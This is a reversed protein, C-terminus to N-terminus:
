QRYPSSFEAGPRFRSRVNAPGPTSNGSRLQGASTDQFSVTGAMVPPHNAYGVVTATLGYGSPNGTAAIATTTPYLGTVTLLQSNSTSKLAAATASFVANYTHAGIAPIIRLTATGGVLQATGVIATDECFQATADCFNVTGAAVPAGNATVSATLTVVTHWAVSSSSITLTTTTPLPAAQAATAVSCAVTLLLRSIVRRLAVIRRYASFSVNGM